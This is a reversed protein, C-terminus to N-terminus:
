VNSIEEYDKLSGDNMHIKDDFNYIIQKTPSEFNMFIFNYRSVDKKKLQNYYKHFHPDLIEDLRNLEEKKITNGLIIVSTFNARMMPSLYKSYQLSFILSIRYWRAKTIFNNILSTRSFMGICDDFIILAFKKKNQELGQFEIISELYEDCYSEFLKEQDIKIASWKPDTHITPSFIFVNHFVSKYAQLLLNVVLTTKGNGRASLILMAFSAKPLPHPIKTNIKDLASTFEDNQIVIKKVNM